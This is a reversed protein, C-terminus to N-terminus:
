AAKEEKTLLQEFFNQISTQQEEANDIANFTKRFVESGPVTHLYWSAHKRAIRPGM